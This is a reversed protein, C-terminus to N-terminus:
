KKIKRWVFLILSSITYLVVLLILVTRWSALYQWQLLFFNIFGSFSWAEFGLGFSLKYFTHFSLLVSILITMGIILISKKWTLKFAEKLM